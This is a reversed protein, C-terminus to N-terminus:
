QGENEEQNPNELFNNPKKVSMMLKHMAFADMYIRLEDEENLLSCFAVRELIMALEPYGLEISRSSLESICEVIQQKNIDQSM